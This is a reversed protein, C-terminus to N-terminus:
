EPFPLNAGWKVEQRDGEFRLLLEFACYEVRLAEEFVNVQKPALDTATPFRADRIDDPDIAIPVYTDNLHFIHRDIGRNKGL